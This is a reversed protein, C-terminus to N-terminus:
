RTDENQGKAIIPIISSAFILFFGAQMLLRLARRSMQPFDKIDGKRRPEKAFSAIALPRIFGLLV